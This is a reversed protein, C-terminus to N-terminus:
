LLDKRSMAKRLRELAREQLQRIREKSLQYKEAIEQFTLEHDRELGFRLKVIDAEIGTLNKLLHQVERLMGESILRESVSLEASDDELLELFSRHDQQSVERDLSVADEVLSLDAKAVKDLKFGTATALEESTPARGLERQLRKKHRLLTHLDAMMHVPLRVVRSKDAVGRAIAHRIWWSAYTSFRYGRRYDFREVAKILGMNGEQILDALPMRGRDFRRAISVVLRLNAKVFDEKARQILQSIVGTGQVYIQWTDDKIAQTHQSRGAKRSNDLRRIEDLILGIYIRDLDLQRLKAALPGAAQSLRKSTSPETAMVETAVKRLGPLEPPAKGLVETLVDLLHSTLSPFSLIQVWLVEEMIGIRRALEYESASSLVPLRTIQHFYSGIPDIGSAKAASKEGDEDSPAPKEAESEAKKKAPRRKITIPVGRRRKGATRPTMTSAAAVVAKEERQTVAPEDDAGNADLDDQAAALKAEAGDDTEAQALRRKTPSSTGKTRRVM